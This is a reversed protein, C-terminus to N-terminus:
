VALIRNIPVMGGVKAVPKKRIFKDHWVKRRPLILYNKTWHDHKKVTEDGADLAPLRHKMIM